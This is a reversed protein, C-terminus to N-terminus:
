SSRPAHARLTDFPIVGDEGATRASPILVGAPADGDFALLSRDLRAQPDRLMGDIDASAIDITSITARDNAEYLPLLLTADDVTSTRGDYGPFDNM